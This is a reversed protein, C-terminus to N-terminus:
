SNMLDRQGCALYVCAMFCVDMMEMRSVASRSIGEPADAWSLFFVLALVAGWTSAFGPLNLALSGNALSFRMVFPVGQSASDALGMVSGFPIVAAMGSGMGSMFLIDVMSYLVATETAKSLRRRM